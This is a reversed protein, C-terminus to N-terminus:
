QLLNLRDAEGRPALEPLYTTLLGPFRV